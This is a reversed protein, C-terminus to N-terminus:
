SPLTHHLSPPYIETTAPHNFFSPIPIFHLPLLATFSCLLTDYGSVVLFSCLTFRMCWPIVFQLLLLEIVCAGPTVM